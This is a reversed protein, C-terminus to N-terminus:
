IYTYWIQYSDFGSLNEYSAQRALLFGILLLDADNKGFARSIFDDITELFTNYPIYYYKIYIM